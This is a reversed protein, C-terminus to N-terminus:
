LFIFDIQQSFSLFLFVRGALAPNMFNQGVGGFVQKVVVIAFISGIATM